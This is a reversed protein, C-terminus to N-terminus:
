KLLSSAKGQRVYYEIRSDIYQSLNGYVETLAQKVDESITSLIKQKAMEFAETQAAKDFKGNKKLEDVFIQSVANVSTEIINEGLELFKKVTDNSVKSELELTKKRLLNVLYVAVMPLIPIIVVALINSLIDNNM